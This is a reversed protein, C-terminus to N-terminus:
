PATTGGDRLTLAWGVVAGVLSPDAALMGTAQGTAAELFKGQQAAAVLGLAVPYADRDDAAAVVLLPHPDFAAARAPLEAGIPSLLALAKCLGDAICAELAAVSAETGAMVGLQGPDAWATEGLNQLLISIDAALPAGQTEAVLVTFGASALADALGRWALRDPGLLLLGFGRGGEGVPPYLDGLVVEGDSLTMRVLTGSGGGEEAVPAPPVVGDNPVAAADPNNQGIFGTATGYLQDSRLFEPAVSPALTPGSLARTPTAALPTVEAGTCAALLSALAVILARAPRKM